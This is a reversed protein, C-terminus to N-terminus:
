PNTIAGMFLILGSQNDVIACFFPRDVIMSFPEDHVVAATVAMEVSTVAAAETGKEDVELYTKHIVDDILLSATDSMGSFDASQSFADAMGMQSLTNKLSVDFEMKFRPLKIMGEKESMTSVWKSWNASDLSKCFEALSSGKSPLFVCMSFRGDGYPLNVAQFDSNEAYRYKERDSMMKLQKESGDALHFPMDSTAEPEFPKTWKGNFYIANILLMATANDLSSSDVIESIKGRTSKSVWRNVMKAAGPSTFDLTELEAQYTRCTRDLFDKKFTLDKKLWLSNAISIEVRPDGNELSKMMNANGKNIEELKMGEFGLVKSMSEATKGGAGNLTMSLALSISAPSVFVNRKFKEADNLKSFLKFAFDNDAASLKPDIKLSSGVVTEIHACKIDEQSSTKPRAAWVIAVLALIIIASVVILKSKM